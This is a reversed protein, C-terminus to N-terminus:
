KMSPSHSETSHTTKEEVVVRKETVVPKQDFYIRHIHSGNLGKEFVLKDDVTVRNKDADLSVMDGKMVDGAYLIRNDTADYVYVRGNSPAAYSLIKQSEGVKLASSPVTDPKEHVCGVAFLGLSGAVVGLVASQVIQM